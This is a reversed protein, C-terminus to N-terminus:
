SVMGLRHVGSADFQDLTGDSFIIDLVLSNSTFAAGASEVGSGGLQHAGTFDFQTLVGATTVVELVDGTSGFAVSASQVGGAWL